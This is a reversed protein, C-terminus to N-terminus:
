RTRGPAPLAQRTLKTAKVTMIKRLEGGAEGQYLTQTFSMTTINSFIEKFAMKKGM